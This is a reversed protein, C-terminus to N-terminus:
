QLYGAAAVKKDDYTKNSNGMEIDAKGGTM